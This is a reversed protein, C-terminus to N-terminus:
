NFNIDTNKNTGLIFNSKILWSDALLMSCEMLLAEFALDGRLNIFQWQM